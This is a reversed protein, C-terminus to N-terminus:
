PLPKRASEESEKVLADIVTDLIDDGPSKMYKHRIMGNADVLYITPWVWVNWASSIPGNIGGGNWFSRWTIKERGNKEKAKEREGDSNVGVLVFPKAKLREVLSREHPFARM